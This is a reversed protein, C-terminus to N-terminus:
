NLLLLLFLALYYYESILPQPRDIKHDLQVLSYKVFLTEDKKIVTVQIGKRLRNNIILSISKIQM